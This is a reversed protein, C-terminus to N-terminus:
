LFFVVVAQVVNWDDIDLKKIVEKPNNTLAAAYAFLRGDADTPKIGQLHNYVAGINLRPKFILEKVPAETVSQYKIKYVLNFTTDDLVMSGSSIEEALSKIAEQNSERKSASVKKHDLWKEIEQMAVEPSLASM